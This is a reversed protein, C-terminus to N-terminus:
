ICAPAIPQAPVVLTEHSSVKRIDQAPIGQDRALSAVRAQSPGSVLWTGQGSTHVYNLQKDAWVARSRPDEFGSSSLNHTVHAALPLSAVLVLLWLVLVLWRRRACAQAWRAVM